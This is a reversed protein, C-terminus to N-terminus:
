LDSNLFWFDADLLPAFGKLLWSLIDTIVKETCIFFPVLKGLSTWHVM